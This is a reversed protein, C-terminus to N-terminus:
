LSLMIDDCSIFLFNIFLLITSSVLNGGLFELLHLMGEEVFVVEKSLTDVMMNHKRFIHSVELDFFAEQLARTKQQWAELILIHLSAKGRFWEIIM